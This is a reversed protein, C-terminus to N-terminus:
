EAAQTPRPRVPAHPFFWLVVAAAFLERALEAVPPLILAALWFVIWVIHKWSRRRATREAERREAMGTLDGQRASTEALSSAATAEAAAVAVRAVARILRSLLAFVGAVALLGILLDVNTWRFSVLNVAVAETARV